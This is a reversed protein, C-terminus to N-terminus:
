WEGSLSASVYAKQIEGRGSAYGRAEPWPGGEARVFAASQRGAPWWTM